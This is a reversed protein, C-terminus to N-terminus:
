GQKSKSGVMFGLVFIAIIAIVHFVLMGASMEM